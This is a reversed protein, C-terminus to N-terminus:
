PTILFKLDPLSFIQNTVTSQVKIKEIFFRDGPRLSLLVTRAIDTMGDDISTFEKLNRKISMSIDFSVVKYNCEGNVEVKNCARLKFVSIKGGPLGLLSASCKAKGASRRVVIKDIQGFGALFGSLLIFILIMRMRM